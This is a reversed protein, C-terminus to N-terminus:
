QRSDTSAMAQFTALLELSGYRGNSRVERSKRSSFNRSDAPDYLVTMVPRLLDVRAVRDGARTRGGSPSKAPTFLLNADGSAGQVIHVDCNEKGGSLSSPVMNLDLCILSM